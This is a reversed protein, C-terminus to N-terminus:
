VAYEHTNCVVHRALSSQFASVQGKFITPAGDKKGVMQAQSFRQNSGIVTELIKIRVLSSVFDM